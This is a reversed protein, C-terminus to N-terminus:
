CSKTPVGAGLHSTVQERPFMCSIDLFKRLAALCVQQFKKATATASAGDHTQFEPVLRQKLRQELIANLDSLSLQAFPDHAPTTEAPEEAFRSVDLQALEPPLQQMGATM